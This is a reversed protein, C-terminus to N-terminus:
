ICFDDSIQCFLLEAILRVNNNQADRNAGHTLLIQMADVNNVAAAWHLATKGSDDAANVDTDAGILDGVMGENALRAVLILPSTGDNMRANLDTSRNRLLIQFVDQADSAIAAHLPTRGTSDQCNVDAGADLLRKAADARAYRAALHLSTEGTSDMTANLKAGQNILEQIVSASGDDVDDETEPEAVPETSGHWFSAIMLPTMGMPGRVDVDPPAAEDHKPTLALLDPNRICAAAMHQQTWGRDDEVDKVVTHNSGYSGSDLRKASPEEDDM